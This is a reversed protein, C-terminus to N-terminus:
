PARGHGGFQRAPLRYRPPDAKRPLKDTGVCQRRGTDSVDFADLRADMVNADGETEFIRIRLLIQADEWEAFAGASSKAYVKAKYRRSSPRPARISLSRAM